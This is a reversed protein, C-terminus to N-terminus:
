GPDTRHDAGRQCPRKVCLPASRSVTGKPGCTTWICEEAAPRDCDGASAAAAPNEVSRTGLMHTLSLEIGCLKIYDGTTWRTAGPQLRSITSCSARHLVLYDPTPNREANLVFGEPHGDLWRVYSDDDDIFCQVVVAHRVM